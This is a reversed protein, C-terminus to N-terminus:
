VAEGIGFQHGGAHGNFLECQGNGEPHVYLTWCRRQVEGDRPPTDLAPQFLTAEAVYVLPRFLAGCQCHDAGQEFIHRPHTVEPVVPTCIHAPDTM